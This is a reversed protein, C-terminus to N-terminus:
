SKFNAVVDFGLRKIETALKQLAAVEIQRVRERTIGYRGSIEELTQPQDSLRRCKVVDRERDTLSTLGQEVFEALQTEWMERLTVDEPAFEDSQLNDGVTTQGDRKAVADLSVIPRVANIAADNKGPPIKGMRAERFARSPVTVVSVVESSRANIFNQIWYRSYTSFKVGFDPNFKDLARLIGLSGEQALDQIHDPNKSYFSAIKFCLRSYARVIKDRADTNRNLQWEQILRLEQDPRLMPESLASNRSILVSGDKGM